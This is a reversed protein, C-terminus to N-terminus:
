NFNGPRDVHFNVELSRTEGPGLDGIRWEQGSPSANAAPNSNM